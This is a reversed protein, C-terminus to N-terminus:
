DFTINLENCLDIYEDLYIPEGNKKITDTRGRSKYWSIEYWDNDKFILFTTQGNHWFYKIEYGDISKGEDLINLLGHRLIDGGNWNDPNFIWEDVYFDLRIFLPKPESRFNGSNLMDIKKEKYWELYDNITIM